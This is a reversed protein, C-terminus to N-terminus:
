AYGQPDYEDQDDIAVDRDHKLDKSYAELMEKTPILPGDQRLKILRLPKAKRQYRELMGSLRKILPM